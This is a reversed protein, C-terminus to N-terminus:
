DDVFDRYTAPGKRKTPVKGNDDQKNTSLPFTKYFNDIAPQARKVIEPPTRMPDDDKTRVSVVPCSPDMARQVVTKHFARIYPNPISTYDMSNAPLMLADILDDCAKAKPSTTDMTVYKDLPALSLKPVDGQFPLQLVVLHIPNEDSQLPFLGVLIPDADKSKVMTAIGVQKTRQLARALASITACARRSNAGSIAYPPGMMLERRVKNAPLYGLIQIGVPSPNTLGQLDFGGMPVLDSGYRYAYAIDTVEEDEQDPDWHSVITQMDSTMEDGLANKPPNPHAADNNMQVVQKKLTPASAKSILLSFRAEELVLGPAIRFIFKRRISKPVRKGLTKNLIQQVEKAAMVFGGTKETLGILLQENQQKVMATHEEEDQEESADDDEEEEEEMSSGNGTEKNDDDDDDDDNDDNDHNDDKPENEVSKEEKAKVKVLRSPAAAATEFDAQQTFELGIVQLQCEMARLSDLVVLLQKSDVVVEHQADTFLVMRRQYKKGATRRYLADAAVIIGDCFDGRLNNDKNNSSFSSSTDKTTAQLQHITRLLDPTPRMMGSALMGNGGYETINPFPIQQNENDEQEQKIMMMNDNDNDEHFHHHTERTKLVIVCVENTKSRIMLDAVMDLITQKACEFKTLITTGADADADGHNCKAAMSQNADLIFVVAEKQAM